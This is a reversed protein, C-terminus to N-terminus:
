GSFSWYLESMRGDIAKRKLQTQFVLKPFDSKLIGSLLIEKKHKLHTYKYCSIELSWQGNCIRANTALWSLYPSPPSAVTCWLSDQEGKGKGGERGRKSHHLESKCINQMWYLNVKLYWFTYSVANKYNILLFVPSYKRVALKFANSKLGLVYLWQSIHVTSTYM